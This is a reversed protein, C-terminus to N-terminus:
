VLHSGPAGSASLIRGFRKLLDTMTKNSKNAFGLEKFFQYVLDETSSFWWPNFRVIELRKDAKLYHQIFNLVTTKGSGWEGYIALVLGNPVNEKSMGSIGKAITQAFSAYGLRDQEPNNLPQGSDLNYEPSDNM